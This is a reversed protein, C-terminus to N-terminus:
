VIFKSYEENPDGLLAMCAHERECGMYMGPVMCWNHLAEHILVQVIEADHMTRAFMVIEDSNNYALVSDPFTNGSTFKASRLRKLTGYTDFKVDPNRKYNNKV